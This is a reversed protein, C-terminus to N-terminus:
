EDDDDDSSGGYSLQKSTATAKKPRSWDAVQKSSASRRATDGEQKDPKM